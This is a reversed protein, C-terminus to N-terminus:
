WVIESSSERLKGYACNRALSHLAVVNQEVSEGEAQTRSNFLAREFILNRRVGFFAEFAGMVESYKKKAKEDCKVSLLVDEGEEGLCYLLTSVQRSEEEGSLGPFQEFRQKWHPWEEIKKFDFTAPPEWWINSSLLLWLAMSIIIDIISDVYFLLSDCEACACYM